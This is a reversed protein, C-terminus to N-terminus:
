GGTASKENHAYQVNLCGLTLGRNGNRLAGVIRRTSAQSPARFPTYISNRTDMAIHHCLSRATNPGSLQAM